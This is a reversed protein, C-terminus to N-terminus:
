MWRAADFDVLVGWPEFGLRMLAHSGHRGWIVAAKSCTVQRGATDVLVQDVLDFELAAVIRDFAEHAAQAADM